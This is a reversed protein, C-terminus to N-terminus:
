GDCDRGEMAKIWEYILAAGAEHALARGLQPMMAGPDTTATRFYLISQEPQGPVVDYTLGGGGKGASGPMKCLGLSTLNSEHYDLILKSNIGASSRVNHCHGCNIDMYARARDAAPANEDEIQPLAPPNGFWPLGTLKELRALRQIQNEEGDAYAYTRNIHRAKPGIPTIVQTRADDGEYMHHCTACQNKAPVAYQFAVTEGEEDIFSIDIKRGGFATTAESQEDNWVYPVAVWGDPQHILLRTEIRKVDKEPERFDKPFSFTKTIVTGVPFDFVDPDRYIAAKGEPIHISRHKLAHDSFLATNLDYIMAGAVVSPRGGPENMDQFLGYESLNKHIPIPKANPDPKHSTSCTVATFALALTIAYKM